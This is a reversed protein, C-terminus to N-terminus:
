LITSVNLDLFVQGAKEYEWNNEALCRFIFDFVTIHKLILIGLIILKGNTVFPFHIM